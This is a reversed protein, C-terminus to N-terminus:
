FLAIPNAPSGTGGAIKLPAIILMFEYRGEEECIGALHELLANDLLAVGYSYLASHTSHPLNYGNPHLDQMDWMVLAVDNDRIFPLCTSHFGPRIPGGPPYAIDPNAAQWMERGCYVVIADGPELTVGQERAIDELEWGHVPTEQTVYAGDRHKPVDFFVGRTIIGDSWADVAGFKAGYFTLEEDPDRGNWMGGRDWVHCLADLHTHATGHYFMGIFDASTGREAGRPAARMYHQAPYTNGPAPTTPVYRSLSVSRGSRVLGAAALRKEPTILNIAGVQDDDGWRGWNRRDRIYSEVEERAPLRREM